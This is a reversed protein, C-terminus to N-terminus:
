GAAGALRLGSQVNNTNQGAGAQTGSTGGAATQLQMQQMRQQISQQLLARIPVDRYSRSLEQMVMTPDILGQMAFQFLQLAEQQRSSDTVFPASNFTLDYAFKGKLQSGIYNQWAIAGDQGVTKIIRPTKWYKFIIENIKRFSNIYLNAIKQQRRTMRTDRAEQVQQVEYASTRAGAYEGAQTRTFGSTERANSRVFDAEQYLNQNNGMQLAAIVTRLDDADVGVAAGVAGTLLKELEPKDIAGKKYLFRLVNLRRQKTTQVSIDTLEAQAYLLYQADSTRWIRNTKPTFGLEVFPLGGLQLSNGENRLFKDHGTAIVYIKGTRKDHIEWLEVYEAEGDIELSKMIDDSGIRYPKVSTQYSKMFDSMSMNPQLERKGSYKVDDKIDQIHRVVRHAVWPARDIDRTGWPVVIDHPMVAQFWPMGPEYENFEIYQQKKNVQTLSLGAPQKVGNYDFEPSWGFESDYGIKCFSTGWLYACYTAIEAEDNMQLQKILQNDISEVIPSSQMEQMTLPDVLLAPNPVNLTSLLDDGMSYLLNPGSSVMSLDASGALAEIKAWNDELGYRRRFELGDNLETFWEDVTLEKM